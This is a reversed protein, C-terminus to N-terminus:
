QRLWAVSGLRLSRGDVHGRLGGGAIEEFHTLRGETQLSSSGRTGPTNKVSAAAEHSETNGSLRRRTRCTVLPHTSAQALCAVAAREWATLPPGEFATIDSARGTLTGTKDLVVADVRALRELVLASKVFIGRRALWRQATGFTFPAALALACPCAVILVAVLVAV